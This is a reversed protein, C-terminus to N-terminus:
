SAELIEGYLAKTEADLPELFESQRLILDSPM